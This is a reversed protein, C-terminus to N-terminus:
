NKMKGGMKENKKIKQPASHKSLTRKEEESKGGREEGRREGIL